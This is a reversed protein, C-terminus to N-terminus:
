PAKDSPFSQLSATGDATLLPDVKCEPEERQTFSAANGADVNIMKQLAAATNSFGLRRTMHYGDKLAQEYDSTM